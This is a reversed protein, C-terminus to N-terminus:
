FNLETDLELTVTMKKSKITIRLKRLKFKLNKIHRVEIADSPKPGISMEKFFSIYEYTLM